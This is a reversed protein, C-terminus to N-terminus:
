HVTQLRCRERGGQFGPRQVARVIEAVHFIVLHDSYSAIADRVDRDRYLRQTISVTDLNFTIAIAFGVAFSTLQTRRKYVEGMMTLTRDTWASVATTLKDVSDIGSQALAALQTKLKSAPLAEIAAIIGAMSPTDIAGQRLGGVLLRALVNPDVYSEKRGKKFFSALPRITSLVTQVAPVDILAALDKALQRGRSNLM